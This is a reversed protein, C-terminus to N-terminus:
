SLVVVLIGVLGILFAWGLYHAGELISKLRLVSHSVQNAGQWMGPWLWTLDLLSAVVQPTIKLWRLIIIRGSGFALALLWIVLMMIATSSILTVSNNGRSLNLGTVVSFTLGGLGPILFPVALIIAARLPPGKEAQGRWLWIWYQYLVSCAIGQALLVAAVLGPQSTLLLDTYIRVAALWGLTAPFGMLSLTALIPAAYIWVWHRELFNPRGIQPTLWLTGLGLTYVLGLTISVRASIPAILLALSPQTLIMRLLKLRMHKLDDLWALWATLLMILVMLLMVFQPLPVTLFRAAVYVGVATSLALWVMIEGGCLRTTGIYSIEVFPFLGVRLWLAFALLPGGLSATERLGALMLVGMTFIALFLRTIALNPRQLRLWYMCGIVDFFLLAYSFSIGNAAVFVPAVAGALGLVIVPDSAQRAWFLGILLLIPILLFALSLGDVRMTLVGGLGWDSFIIPSVLPSVTLRFLIRSILVAFVLFSVALSTYSKGPLIAVVVAGALLLITPTLPSFWLDAM